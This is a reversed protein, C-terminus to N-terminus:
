AIEVTDKQAVLQPSRYADPRDLMTYARVVTADLARLWDMVAEFWAPNCDDASLRARAQVCGANIAALVSALEQTEEHHPIFVQAAPSRLVRELDFGTTHEWGEVALGYHECLRRGQEAVVKSQELVAKITAIPVQHPVLRKLLGLARDLAILMAYGARAEPGQLVLLRARPSQRFRALKRQVRDQESQPKATEAM